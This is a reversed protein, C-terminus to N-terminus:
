SPFHAPQTRRRVLKSKIEDYELWDGAKLMIRQESGFLCIKLAYVVGQKVTVQTKGSQYSVTFAADKTELIFHDSTHVLLRSHTPQKNTAFFGQGKLWVNCHPGSWDSSVELSSTAGLTVGSENPLKVDMHQGITTQYVVDTLTQIHRLMRFGMGVAIICSLWIGIRILQNSILRSISPEAALGATQETISSWLEQWDPTQRAPPVPKNWQRWLASRLRTENTPNQLWDIVKQEEDLSCENQVYKTLLKEM